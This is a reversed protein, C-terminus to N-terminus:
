HDQDDLLGREVAYLALGARSELGLKEYVNMVHKQATRASVGLLTGIEKHTRGIAVLRVLRVERDSLGGAWATKGRSRVGLAQLVYGVARPDLAGIRGLGRLEKIRAEDDLAPRHPRAEGLASGVDAAAVIKALLPLGDLSVGRHYGHGRGREHVAGAVAALDPLRASALIQETHQSHSRVRQWELANLPQKKDWIGTAIAVRGLDHVAAARRLLTLSLGDLDAARGAAEALQTVRRSHTLTYVSKLDAFRGLAVCGHDADDPEQRAPGPEAALYEEWVSGAHLNALLPELEALALDVLGPDLTKGRRAVLVSRALERGGSRAFLELVDAVDAVRASLPLREGSLGLRGTGDYREGTVDLERSVAEPMGLSRAFFQASECHAKAYRQRMERDLLFRAVSAARGLLPAEPAFGSLVRRAVDLPQDFDTYILTQRVSNDDGAALAAQEPAFATCGVSRLASVWFIAQAADKNASLSRGLRTAVLVTRLGKELSLGSALDAALSLAGIVEALRM